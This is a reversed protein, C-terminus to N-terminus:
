NRAVRVAALVVAAAALLLSFAPRAVGSASSATSPFATEVLAAEPDWVVKSPQTPDNFFFAQISSSEAPDKDDDDTGAETYDETDPMTTTATVDAWGQAGLKSKWVSRLYSWRGGGAINVHGAPDTHNVPLAERGQVSQICVLLGLYSSGVPAKYPFNDIEVDFKVRDPGVSVNKNLNLFQPAARVSLTFVLNPSYLNYTLSTSATKYTVGNVTETGTTIDTFQKGRGMLSIRRIVHSKNFPKTIDGDYEIMGLVGVRFKFGAVSDTNKKMYSVRFRPLGLTSFHFAFLNGSTKGSEVNRYLIDHPNTVVTIDRDKPRSNALAVASLLAIVLAVRIATGM